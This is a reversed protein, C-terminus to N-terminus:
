PRFTAGLTHGGTDRADDPILDQDRASCHGGSLRRSSLDTVSPPTHGAMCPCQGTFGRLAAPSMQWESAFPQPHESERPEAVPLSLREPIGALSLLHVNRGTRPSKTSM